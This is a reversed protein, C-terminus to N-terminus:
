EQELYESIFTDARLHHVFFSCCYRGCPIAPWEVTDLILSEDNM